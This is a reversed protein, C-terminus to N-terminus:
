APPSYVSVSLEDRGATYELRWDALLVDMNDSAEHGVALHGLFECVRHLTANTIPFAFVGASNFVGERLGRATIAILAADVTPAGYITLDGSRGIPSPQFRAFLAMAEENFASRGAWYLKDM